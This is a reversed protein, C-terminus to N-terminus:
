EKIQKLKFTQEPVEPTLKVGEEFDNVRVIIMNAQDAYLKTMILNRVTVTKPNKNIGYILNMSLENDALSMDQLRASMEKSNVTLVVKESLYKQMAELSSPNEGSFGKEQIEGVSLRYDRLFDDFYMRVFVNFSDTEPMYDVSTLTVHVPHLAFWISIFLVKFM